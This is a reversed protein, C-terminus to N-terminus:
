AFSLRPCPGTSTSTLFSRIMIPPATSVTFLDEGPNPVNESGFVNSVYGLLGSNEPVPKDTLPNDDEQQSLEVNALGLQLLRELANLLMIFEADTAASAIDDVESREKSARLIDALALRLQRCVCDNLPNVLAHLTPQFQPVAMLVFDLWHQLVPRNSMVAIGDVLTQVLLPNIPPTRKGDVHLGEQMSHDDSVGDSSRLNRNGNLIPDLNTTSASILSHLIHLLKNQLDLRKDHVCFYLKGIVAAEIIDVLVNDIEGRAVIVQLLDIANSQIISNYHQMPVIFAGKPEAQVFSLVRGSYAKRLPMLTHKGYYFM